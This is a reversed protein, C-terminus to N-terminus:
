RDASGSQYGLGRKTAEAPASNKLGRKLFWVRVCETLRQNKAPEVQMVDLFLDRRVLLEYNEAFRLKAAFSKAHVVRLEFHDLVVLLFRDVQAPDRRNIRRGLTQRLAHQAANNVSQEVFEVGFRDRRQQRFIQVDSVGAVRDTRDMKRFVPLRQGRRAIM